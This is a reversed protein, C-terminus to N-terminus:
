PRHRPLPMKSEQALLHEYSATLDTTTGVAPGTSDPIADHTESDGAPAEGRRARRYSFLAVLGVIGLVILWGVAQEAVADPMASAIAILGLWAVIVLAIWRGRIPPRSRRRRSGRRRRRTVVTISNETVDIVEVELVWAIEVGLLVAFLLAFALTPWDGDSAAVLAFFVGLAMLPYAVWPPILLRKSFYVRRLRMFHTQICV